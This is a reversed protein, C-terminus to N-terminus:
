LLVNPSLRHVQRTIHFNVRAAIWFSPSRGPPNGIAAENLAQDAWCNLKVYKPNQIAMRAALSYGGDDRRYRHYYGDQLLPIDVRPVWNTVVGDFDNPHILAYDGHLVDAGELGILKLQESILVEELRFEGYADGGGFNPITVSSPFCSALPAVFNVKGAFHKLVTLCRAVSAPTGNQQVYGDDVLLAVFGQLGVRPKLAGALEAAYPYDTPVRLAVGGSHEFLDNIQEVVENLDFPDSLHVVPICNRPLRQRVFSRWNAFSGAPDLLGAIEASGQSDLSTVDAIFPRDGVAPLLRELTKELSGEPNKPSRRSKTLEFVPLLSDKVQM